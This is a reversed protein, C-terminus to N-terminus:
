DDNDDYNGKGAESPTPGGRGFERTSVISDLAVDPRALTWQAFSMSM